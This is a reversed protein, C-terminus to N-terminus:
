EFNMRWASRSLGTLLENGSSVSVMQQRIWSIVLPDPGQVQGATFRCITWVRLLIAGSKALKKKGSSQDRTMFFVDKDHIRSQLTQVSSLILQLFNEFFHFPPVPEVPWTQHSSPTLNLTPRAVRCTMNSVTQTEQKNRSRLWHLSEIYCGNTTKLDDM